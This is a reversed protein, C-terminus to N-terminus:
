IEESTNIKYGEGFVSSASTVIFFAKEDEQRIIDKARPFAKMQLVCMLVQKDSDTYAGKANLYTVGTQLETLLRQAIRKQNDSIIYVLRATDSGYIVINIIRTQLFSAILAYLAPTIDKFAIASSAIICCDIILFLTGSSIHRFKTRLIRILIDSGGTTGGARFVLGIGIGVLLSGFISALMIDDTVTIATHECLAMVASSLAVTYFTSLIFRKGFKVTGIILIPINFLFSWVGVGFIGVTKSLIISLGSVGGPAIANAEFFLSIGLAYIVAGLTLQAFDGAKRLRKSM